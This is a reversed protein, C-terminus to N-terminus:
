SYWHYIVGVKEVKFWGDYGEALSGGVMISDARDDVSVVRMM